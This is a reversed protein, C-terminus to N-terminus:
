ATIVIVIRSRYSQPVAIGRRMRSRRFHDFNRNSQSVVVIRSYSTDRAGAEMRRSEVRAFVDINRRLRTTTTDYDFRLQSIPKVVSTNAERSKRRSRLVCVTCPSEM